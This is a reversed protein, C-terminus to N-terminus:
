DPSIKQLVSTMGAFFTTIHLTKHTKNKTIRTLKGKKM